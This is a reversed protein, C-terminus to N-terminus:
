FRLSESIAYRLSAVADKGGLKQEFLQVLIDVENVISARVGNDARRSTGMAQQWTRYVHHMPQLLPTFQLASLLSKGVNREKQFENQDEVSEDAAISAGVNGLQSVFLRLQLYQRLKPHTCYISLLHLLSIQSRTM